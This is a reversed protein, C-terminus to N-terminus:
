SIRNEDQKLKKYKRKGYMLKCFDENLEEYMNEVFINKSFSIECGNEDYHSETYIILPEIDKIFTKMVIENRGSGDKHWMFHKAHMNIARHLDMYPKYIKSYIYHHKKNKFDFLFDFNAYSNDWESYDFDYIKLFFDLKTEVDWSDEYKNVERVIALTQFYFNEFIKRRETIYGVISLILTLIAGSFIGMCIDYLFTMYASDGTSLQITLIYGVTLSIVSLITTIYITM